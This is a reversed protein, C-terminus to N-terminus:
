YRDTDFGETDVWSHALVTAHDAHLPHPGLSIRHDAVAELLEREEETFERHDSLVFVPDAPPAVAPAPEGDTQLHVVTGNASAAEVTGEFGRRVLSVGPSVEVPIQGIAEEREALAARVRAATSREDPNLGQLTAGDFTVTFTEGLVLHVRTDARIDHSLLLAATISRALLDMRGAGTLDDLSFDVTAPAEHGVYVFQRM